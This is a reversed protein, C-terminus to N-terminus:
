FPPVAVGGVWKRKFCAFRGHREPTADGAAAPRPAQAAIHEDVMRLAMRMDALLRRYDRAAEVTVADSARFPRVFVQPASCSLHPDDAQLISFPVGDPWLSASLVALHTSVVRSERSYLPPKPVRPLKGIPPSTRRDSPAIPQPGRPPPSHGTLAPVPCLLCSAPAPPSSSMSLMIISTTTLIIVPTLVVVLHRRRPRFSVGRHLGQHHGRRILNCRPQGGRYSVLPGHFSDDDRDLGGRLILDAVNSLLPAEWRAPLTDLEM